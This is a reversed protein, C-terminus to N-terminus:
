LKGTRGTALPAEAVPRTTKLAPYFTYSLTINKIFRMEEDADIAPDVYFVVPMSRKEGPAFTQETFCFCQLKSFYSGTEFPAVNFVATATVPESGRNEAVYDITVVDGVRVQVSRMQPTFSLPLGGGVNADFRVTMTRDIPTVAVSEVRKTTGGYGTVQCFLQYLPVSAYAAGVMGAVGAVCALAVRGNARSPGPSNQDM